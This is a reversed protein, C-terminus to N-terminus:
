TLWCFCYIFIYLQEFDIWCVVRKRKVGTDLRSTAGNRPAGYLQAWITSATSFVEPGIRDCDWLMKLELRKNQDSLCRECKRLKAFVREVGSTTCGDWAGLRMVLKSLNDTPHSTSSRRSVQRIAQRWSEFSNVSALKSHHMAIPRIDLFEHIFNEENVEPFAACLRHAADRIYAMGEQGVESDRSRANLNFISMACMLSFGPFEAEVTHTLLAVWAHMEQLLLFSSKMVFSRLVSCTINRFYSQFVVCSYSHGQVLESTHRKELM